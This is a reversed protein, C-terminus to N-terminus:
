LKRKLPKYGKLYTTKLQFYTTLLKQQVFNLQVQQKNETQHPFKNRVNKRCIFLM